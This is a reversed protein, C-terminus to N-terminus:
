RIAELHHFVYDHYRAVRSSDPCDLYRGDCLRRLRSSALFYAGGPLAATDLMLSPLLAIDLYAHSERVAPAFNTDIRYSAIFDRLAGPVSDLGRKAMGPMAGDLTPQHDGYRVLMTPRAGPAHLYDAAVADLAAETLQLRYLYNALSVSAAPALAPFRLSRYPEPLAALPQDHPEHQYQTLVYVFVPRPGRAAPPILRILHSRMMEDTVLWPDPPLGLDSAALFEEFGYHRYAEAANLFHKETPYLALTRYGLARLARPLSSRVRPALTIHSYIGGPGFTRHDLGTLVAFESTCSFGGFIHTALLGASASDAGPAFVRSECQPADCAAILRPDITSEAHWLVIDPLLAPAPPIAGTFEAAAQGSGDSSPAPVAVGMRRFSRLLRSLTQGPDSLFRWAAMPEAFPDGDASARTPALIPIMLLAAGLLVAAPSRPRQRDIRMRIAFALLLLAIATGVALVFAISPYRRLITLNAALQPLFYVDTALLPLGLLTQKVWAAATILGLLLGAALSALSPRATAGALVLWLGAIFPISLLLGFATERWLLAGAAIAFM